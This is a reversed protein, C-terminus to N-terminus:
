VGALYKVEFKMTSMDDREECDKGEVLHSVDAMSTVGRGCIKDVAAM